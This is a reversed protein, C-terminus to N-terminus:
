LNKTKKYDYWFMGAFVLSIAIAIFHSPNWFIAALCLIAMLTWIVAWFLNIKAM